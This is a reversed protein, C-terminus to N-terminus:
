EADPAELEITAATLSQGVKDWCRGTILASGGHLEYNRRHNEVDVCLRALARRLRAAEEQCDYLQCYPCVKNNIYDTGAHRHM